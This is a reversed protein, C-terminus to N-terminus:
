CSLRDLCLLLIPQKQTNVSLLPRYPFHHWFDASSCAHKNLMPRAERKHYPSVGHVKNLGSPWFMKPLLLQAVGFDSLQSKFVCLKFVIVQQKFHRCPLLVLLLFHQWFDNCPVQMECFHLVWFTNGTLWGRWDIYGSESNQLERGQWVFFPSKFLHMIQPFIINLNSLCIVNDLGFAPNNEQAKLFWQQLEILPQFVQFCKRKQQLTPDILWLPDPFAECCETQM